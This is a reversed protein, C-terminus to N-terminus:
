TTPSDSRPGAGIRVAGFFVYLAGVIFVGSPGSAEPLGRASANERPEPRTTTMPSAPIKEAKPLTFPGVCRPMLSASLARKRRFTTRQRAGYPDSFDSAHPMLSTLVGM